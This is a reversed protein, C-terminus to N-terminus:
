AGHNSDGFVLLDLLHSDISSVASDIPVSEQLLVASISRPFSFPFFERRPTKEAPLGM